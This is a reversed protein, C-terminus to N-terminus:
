SQHPPPPIARQGAQPGSSYQTYSDPAPLAYRPVLTRDRERNTGDHVVTKIIALCVVYIVNPDAM